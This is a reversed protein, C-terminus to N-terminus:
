QQAVWQETAWLLATTTRTSSAHRWGAMHCTGPVPQEVEADVTPPCRSPGVATQERPARVVSAIDGQCKTAAVAGCGTIRVNMAVTPRLTTPRGSIPPQMRRQMRWRKVIDQEKTFQAEHRIVNTTQTTM